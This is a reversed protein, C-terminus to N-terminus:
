LVGSVRARQLRRIRGKLSLVIQFLRLEMHLINELGEIVNHDDEPRSHAPWYLKTEMISLIDRVQQELLRLIEEPEDDRAHCESDRSDGSMTDDSINFPTSLQVLRTSTSSCQETGTIQEITVTIREVPDVTTSNATPNPSIDQPNTINMREMTTSLEAITSLEETTSSEDTTSSEETTSSDDVTSLEETTSSEDTTSLGM